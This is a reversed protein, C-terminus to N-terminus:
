RRQFQPSAILLALGARKDPARRVASQVEEPLAEAFCSTMVAVPDPIDALREAFTQCWETRRVV